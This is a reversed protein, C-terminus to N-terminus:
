LNANKFAVFLHGLFYLAAFIGFIWYLRDDSIITYFLKKM